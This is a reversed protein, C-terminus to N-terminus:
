ACNRSRSKRPKRKKKGAILSKEMRKEMRKKMRKEMRKKMMRRMQFLM